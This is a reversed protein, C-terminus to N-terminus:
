LTLMWNEPPFAWFTLMQGNGHHLYKWQSRSRTVGQHWVPHIPFLHCVPKLLQNLGGPGSSGCRRGRDDHGSTQFASVSVACTVARSVGVTMASAPIAIVLELILNLRCVTALVPEWSLTASQGQGWKLGEQNKGQILMQEEGVPEM